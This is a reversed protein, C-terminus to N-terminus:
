FWGFFGWSKVKMGKKKRVEMDWVTNEVADTRRQAVALKAKMETTAKNAKLKKLEVM